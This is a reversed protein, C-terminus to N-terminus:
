NRKFGISAAKRHHFHYVLKDIYRYVSFRGDIVHVATKIYVFLIEDFNDIRTPNKKSWIGIYANLQHELFRSLVEQVIDNSQPRRPHQTPAVLALSPNPRNARPPRIDQRRKADVVVRPRAVSAEDLFFLSLEPPDTALFDYVSVNFRGLLWNEIFCERCSSNSM